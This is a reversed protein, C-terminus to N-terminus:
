HQHANHGQARVITGPHNVIIVSSSAGTGLRDFKHPLHYRSLTVRHLFYPCMGNKSQIIDKKKQFPQESRFKQGLTPQETTEASFKATNRRSTKASCLGGSSQFKGWCLTALSPEFFPIHGQKRHTGIKSDHLIHQVREM